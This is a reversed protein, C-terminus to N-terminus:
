INLDYPSGMRRKFSEETGKMKLEAHVEDIEVQQEAMWEEMLMEFVANLPVRLLRCGRCIKRRDRCRDPLPLKQRNKDGPPRSAGTRIGGWPMVWLTACLNFCEVTFLGRRTEWISISYTCGM